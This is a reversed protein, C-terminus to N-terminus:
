IVHLPLVLYSPFADFHTRSTGRIKVKETVLQEYLPPPHIFIFDELNATDETTGAQRERM